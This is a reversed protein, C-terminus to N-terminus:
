FPLDLESMPSLVKEWGYAFSSKGDASYIRKSAEDYRLRIANDKTALKGTMRNKLVLLRGGTEENEPNKVYSLVTDVRNTIDSSGSVADNDTVNGQTKRPHAILLVAINHKVAIKKLQRVFHSQRLYQTDTSEADIATMLNDVMVLQVGYRCVAQEITQLLGENEDDVANNDYLYARGRYWDSIREVTEAPIGYTPDNFRNYSVTVNQPGALQLDLWRKFMIEPLEGSYALTHMGQGLAEAMIQSGVTSKGEGRKGTLLVVQGFYLGGIVKDLATIGTRICPLQSLDVAEVDALEKVHSVPILKAREVAQRLADVGYKRLIDNADKEGLYDETQVVKVPKTLRRSLEETLTVKGNECDGFVIIEPFKELWDWCHEVWTFGRAGNPVSVANKIGAEALSLSDLQGETIVLPAEPRCHDMGFLIPMTERECWEKNKDRDRDFDTKRYKVFRLVGEGDYFPFVLVNPADRRTTIRYRRAVAEGIGRSRLYEVAPDTTHVQKQPLARFRPRREEKFDLSYGFDRALQVFHGHRDCSSRFCKYLGTTLNVSFTDKDHGDGGCYPCFKFFLEDGKQKVEAGISVALGFADSVKFEYGM